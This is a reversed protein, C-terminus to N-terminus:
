ALDDELFATLFALLGAGNYPGALEADFNSGFRFDGEDGFTQANPTTDTDLLAWEAGDIDDIQRRVKLRLHGM